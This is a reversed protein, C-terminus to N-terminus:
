FFTVHLNYLGDAAEKKFVLLVISGNQVAGQQLTHKDDYPTKENNLLRMEATPKNTIACIKEKIQAFSETPETHM